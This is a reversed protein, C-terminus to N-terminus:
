ENNLVRKLESGEDISKKIYKMFFEKDEEDPKINIELQEFIGVVRENGIMRFLPLMKHSIKGAAAIDDKAFAEKLMMESEKTEKIFSKLIEVSAVTDEKVYEFLASVGKPKINENVIDTKNEIEYTQTSGGNCNMYKAIMEFLQDSTFPKFLFDTFGSSLFESKYIDSRASLAVIPVNKNKKDELQSISEVLDFGSKGGLQIDIFLIDFKNSQLLPLVNDPNSETVCGIKRKLAIESMMKLQVPDDDVYLMNVGELDKVHTIDDSIESYDDTVVTLPIEVVFESGEGKASILHIDGNLEKVFGKTILLGLGSSYKHEGSESNNSVQMFEDFITAQDEIDIGEGTDTVSFILINGADRIKTAVNIVIGGESTYKIANSILNNMIQKIVYPDEYCYMNKSVENYVRYELGKKKALPSFSNASEEILTHINCVTKQLLWSGKDLKHYDLLKSVLQMVHDASIKMSHLYSENNNCNNEENMLEIFGLISGTPAKIDHSIALMLKERNNLLDMIRKNSLELQRRYRQSKNIDILFLVAFFIAIIISILSVLLMTNQSRTLTHERDIILQFSKRIEEQEINKLMDDIRATLMRNTQSMEEQRHLLATQLERQKSLDLRESYRVKNVITDVILRFENESVVSRNEIVITSDPNAIFVDRVRDFFGKREGTIISTDSQNKNPNNLNKRQLYDSIERNLERPVYRIDSERIIEPSQSVSDLLLAIDYLNSSKNKMLISISDLKLKRTVDESIESLRKLNENVKPIVSDYTVYYQRASEATLMNQESEVEYLLSLINGVIMLESMDERRIKKNSFDVLNNYLAIMGIIMVLVVLLYGLIVGIKIKSAGRKKM